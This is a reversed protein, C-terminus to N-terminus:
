RDVDERDKLWEPVELPGYLRKLAKVEGKRWFYVDQAYDAPPRLFPDIQRLTISELSLREEFRPDIDADIYIVIM